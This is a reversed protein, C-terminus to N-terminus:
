RPRSRESAPSPRGSWPKLRAVLDVSCKWVHLHVQGTLVEVLWPDSGDDTEQEPAEVALADLLEDLADVWRRDPQEALASVLEFIAQHGEYVAIRSLLYERDLSERYQSHSAGQMEHVHGLLLRARECAELYNRALDLLPHACRELQLADILEPTIPEPAITADSGYIMLVNSTIRRYNKDALCGRVLMIVQIQEWEVRAVFAGRDDSNAPPLNAQLVDFIWHAAADIGAQANPADFVLWLGPFGQIDDRLDHLPAFGRVQSDVAFANRLKIRLKRLEEHLAKSTEQKVKKRNVRAPAHVFEYWLAITQAYVRRERAELDSLETADVHRAFSARFLRQLEPLHKYGSALNHLSLRPAETQVGSSLASMHVLQRQADSKANAMLPQFELAHRAQQMFFRLEQFSEFLLKRIPDHQRLGLQQDTLWATAKATSDESTFGWEDVACRPFRPTGAFLFQVIDTFPPPEFLGAERLNCPRKQRFYGDVARVLTDMGDCITRRHELIAACWQPWTEVRLRLDGLRVFAGNFRVLERPPFAERPMRKFSPDHPVNAQVYIFRHGVGQAGWRQHNPFLRHLITCRRVSEANLYTEFNEGDARQESTIRQWPVLYDVRVEVGDDHLRLVGYDQEFRAIFQSRHEDFISSGSRWEGYNLDALSEADLEDIVNALAQSWCVDLELEVGLHGAWFLVEAAAGWDSSRLPPATSFRRSSLWERALALAPATDSFRARWARFQQKRGEPVASRETLDVPRSGTVSQIDVVDIDLMVYWATGEERQVEDILELNHELYQAVGLWVLAHVIGRVGEWTQSSLSALAQLLQGREDIGRRAFAHLLFVERDREVLAPLLAIATDSWTEFGADREAFLEALIQSRVSHVGALRNDEHRLLYERELRRFVAGPEVLGLLRATAAADVRAGYADAVVTWRLLRLLGPRQVEDDTLRELQQRLRERLTTPQTLMYVFELLPGSKFRAWADDFDHLHPIAARTALQQHIERAETRELNLEVETFRTVPVDASVRRWDDERITVLLKINNLPAFERLLETWHTDGPRVDHLVTLEIGTTRMYSSIALALERAHQRDRVERIELVSAEPVREHLWRYALTSKGQGSAGRVVVIRAREFARDLQAMLTPREVDLGALIHELRAGVGESYEQEIENRDLQLVAQRSLPVINTFWERAWVGREVVYRAVRDLRDRLEEKDLVLSREASVYIWYMLLDFSADVDAGTSLQALHERVKAEIEQESVQDLEVNALLQEITAADLNRDLLKRRVAERDRGEARWAGSLEVGVPGFTGMRGRLQPNSRLLSATRELFDSVHTLTLDRDYAKVQVVEVVDDDAGLIDM